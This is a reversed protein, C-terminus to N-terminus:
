EGESEYKKKLEKFVERGGSNYAFIKPLFKSELEAFIERAVDSAKRYGKEYLDIALAGSLELPLSSINMIDLAMEEIQKEM